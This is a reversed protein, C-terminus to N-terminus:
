CWAVGSDDADFDNEEDNKDGKIQEQAENGSVIFVFCITPKKGGMQKKDTKYLLFLIGGTRGDRKGISVITEKM